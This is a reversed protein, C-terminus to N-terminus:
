KQKSTNDNTTQHIEEEKLSHKGAFSLCFCLWIDSLGNFILAIGIFRLVSEIAEFPNFFLVCGLILLVCGFILATWWFDHGRRHLKWAKLGDILGHMFFLVGCLIPIISLFIKPNTFIWIGIALFVSALEITYPYETQKTLNRCNWLFSLVGSGILLFAVLFCLLKSSFSPWVAFILGLLLWLVALLYSIYGSLTPLPSKKNRKSM